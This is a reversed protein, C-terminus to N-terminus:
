KRLFWPHLALDYEWFQHNAALLTIYVKPGQRLCFVFTRLVSCLFSNRTPLQLSMLCLPFFCFQTFILLLFYKDWAYSHLFTIFSPVNYNFNYKFANNHLSLCNKWTLNKIVELFLSSSHHSILLYPRQWTTLFITQPLQSQASTYLYQCPSASIGSSLNRATGSQWFFFFFFNTMSIIDYWAGFVVSMNVVSRV